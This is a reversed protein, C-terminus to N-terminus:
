DFNRSAPFVGATEEGELDISYLVELRLRYEELLNTLCEIREHSLKLGAREMMMQVQGSTVTDVRVEVLNM